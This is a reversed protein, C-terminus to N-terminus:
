CHAHATGSLNHLLMHSAYERDLRARKVTLVAIHRQKLAAAEELAANEAQPQLV